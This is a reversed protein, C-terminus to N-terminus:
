YDWRAVAFVGNMQPSVVNSRHDEIYLSTWDYEVAVACARAVRTELGAGAEGAIELPADRMRQDPDRWQGAGIHVYPVLKGGGLGVRAVLMRSARSTRIADTVSMPGGALHTAGQWDRAVISVMVGAGLWPSTDSMVVRARSSAEGGHSVSAASLTTYADAFSSWDVRLRAMGDAADARPAVTLLALVSALTLLPLPLLRV